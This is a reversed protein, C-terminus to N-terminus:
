IRKIVKGPVGGYLSNDPIIKRVVSNAAILSGSGIKSGATITCNASVWVGRQIYIPKLQPIGYRFSGENKTHNSSTIVSQPGFIVEDEIFIKEPANFWNGFAIYVDSGISINSPNYFSINRGLGLSKGCEKFFPSAMRGRLRIFIVNDPLWNTIMLVFHMPLDYRFLRKFKNM